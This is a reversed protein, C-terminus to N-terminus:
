RETFRDALQRRSTVGLKRFVKRLHYDVTNVSIFLRAGIEANTQGTAAMGAITAEQPTLADVDADGLAHHAVHEGTAELERRARDAFAPAAVRTFISLAVRLQERAERRRKMRRLWEGYVLHARGLDGPATARELHRIADLYRSEADTDDALLAESRAAVGRIWPTGSVTAFEALRAVADRVAEARGSRVGAEVFDPLQQYTVQLFNREVMPRFREFADRYHGDAIERIGLGTMAVTWAGAFGTALVGEAVQEVVETPAGAWALYSANVVQQADYGIARRLERVQEIYRGSAAPDGRVLELLGLVWLTTEVVTLAGADRAAELTRELLEVCTREDWLAMTLAVGVSGLELLQADDMDCIMAVTERMVPVAEDYPLLVHASLARLQLSMPGDAVDAGAAFRRGLQPLTTGRVAWEATLEFDFARLLARQELEPARGHSLDAVRLMTATGEVIGDHDAVFIALMSRLTLMRGLALPDLRDADLRGLLDLALGAAGAASAAEGAALLRGDREPGEPTLEAARTLLWARSASGGRGGASDAVQEMRAAVRDDSGVSAAAAHWVALDARGQEDAVAALAEHARRRENAPMGNYVAARVLPHRFSVAHRVSVLRAHEAVAAADAPLGIREAAADILTRDGTSEAAAVLLWLQAERPIAEVQRLYHAELRVGVPIPTHSISSETLQEATFERALDILALPNGGTEAAIRSALYPDVPASASRNLLQVSSLADLGVLDLTPVGAVVVDVRADPRTGLLLAFSEAELRRAVFALVELSEVDLLHADDVVCVLPEAEGAAALLSLMGLGVLYRDPPPGDDLGAAIRLATAQRAPLKSLHEAFPTGIRQLAAYPMASEAEYGDCRVVRLRPLERTAEDLLATKGIGPDGRVLLAAGRGNRAGSALASLRDLEDTRGLILPPSPAISERYHCAARCALM